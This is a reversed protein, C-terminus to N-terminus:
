TTPAKADNGQPVMSRVQDKLRQALAEIMRCEDALIHLFEGRSRRNEAEAPDLGAGISSSSGDGDAALGRLVDDHVSDMRCVQAMAERLAFQARRFASIDKLIRIVSVVAGSGDRIPALTYIISIVSGGRHMAKTLSNRVTTGAAADQSNLDDIERHKEPFLFTIKKGLVEHSSWGFLREAGHNWSLVVGDCTTTVVADESAVVEEPDWATDAASM